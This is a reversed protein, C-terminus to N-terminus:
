QIKMIISQAIKNAESYDKKFYSKLSSNFEQKLAKVKKDIGSDRAYEQLLKYTYAIKGKVQNCENIETKIKVSKEYELNIKFYELTDLEFEIGATLDNDSFKQVNSKGNSDIIELNYKGQNLSKFFVRTNVKEAPNFIFFNRNAGQIAEEYGDLMDLNLVMIDQNDAQALAEYLLYNWFATDCMYICRGMSGHTGGFELTYFNEIPLYQCIHHYLTPNPAAVIDTWVPPFYYFSNIRQLNFLKLLVTRPKDTYKLWTTMPLYAEINEWPCTGYHGGHARILGLNNLDRSVEDSEDDYWFAMRALINFYDNAYQLWKGEKTLNFIRQAAAIAFGNGFTEAIPMEVPDTYTKSYRTNIVTFAMDTLVKEVAIKAENLFRSEGTMEHAELMLYAYTGCQFPERVKGLAPIDLQMTEIKHYADFWQPFVYDVNHALEILTDCAMLFRGPIAPNFNDAPLARHIKVPDLHFMFNEWSMEVGNAMTHKQGQRLPPGEAAWRFLNTDRDHFQPINDIKVQLFDDQDKDPHLRLCAIWPALYANCTVNDWIMKVDKRNLRPDDSSNISYDSHIRFTKVTNETFLPEDVWNNELDAWSINKQMLDKIVGQCFVEWNTEYPPVRNEPFSAQAPLLLSCTDIMTDLAKLSAPMQPRHGSYLYYEMVLHGAPITEGSKTIAHLGLGTKGEKSITAVRCDVFRNLNSQSMWSVPSMDFFVIAERKDDWLYAAPFSNGWTNNGYISEPGQDISFEARDKNMWFCFSPEPVTITLPSTLHCNIRFRIWPNGKEAEVVADWEYDPNNHMGKLLIAAHDKSDKIVEYETPYLDFSPGSVLPKGADFMPLWTDDFRVYTFMLFKNEGNEKLFVIKQHDIIIEVLNDLCKLKM